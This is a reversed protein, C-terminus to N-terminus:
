SKNLVVEIMQQQTVVEEDDQEPEIDMEVVEENWPALELQNAEKKAKIEPPSTPKRKDVPTPTVKLGFGTLSRVQMPLDPLEPSSTDPLQTVSSDVGLKQPSIKVKKQSDYRTNKKLTTIKSNNPSDIAHGEM